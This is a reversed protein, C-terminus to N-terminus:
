GSRTLAGAAAGRRRPRRAASDGLTSRAATCRRRSPSSRWASAPAAARPAARRARVARAAARAGRRPIGPGDDEVRVVLEGDARELAVRVRGSAAATCRRTTSCTTSSCACAAGALRRVTADGVRGALEYDCARTAAARRSSARRRRPRRARGARAAPERGGRRARAGAPRRAPPRHAGARRDDRAGAGRAARAPLGPNRALTDLNARLAPSRRACSTDPTPPSAARPRLARETARDVRLRALMENLTARSRACRTRATTRPCRRARPGRRRQRARRGDRLRALPRVALSTFGWAALATLACRSSASCRARAPPRPRRARRGPRAAAAGPPARRRGRRGVRSRAGPTAASTSPRRLRGGRARRAADAPVDGRQQVVEDASRRGARVHRQRRAAARRAATRPRRGASGRPGPRPRRISAEARERLEADVADRGDREVAALLLSAPSCGASRSRRSPPSRSGRACAARRRM